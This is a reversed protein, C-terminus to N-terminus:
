RGMSPAAHWAKRQQVALVPDLLGGVVYDANSRAHSRQCQNKSHQAQRQRDGRNGHPPLKLILVLGRVLQARSHSRRGGAGNCVNGSGWNGAVKRFLVEDRTRISRAWRADIRIWVKKASNMTVRSKLGCHDVVLSNAQTLL